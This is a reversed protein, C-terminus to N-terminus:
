SLGQGCRGVPPIPPRRQSQRIRNPVQKLFTASKARVPEPEVRLWRRLSMSQRVTSRRTMRKSSPKWSKSGNRRATKRWDDWAAKSIEVVDIVLDAGVFRLAAKGIAMMLNAPCVCRQLRLVTLSPFSDGSPYYREDPENNKMFISDTAFNGPSRTGVGGSDLRDGPRGAGPRPAGPGPDEVSADSARVRRRRDTKLPWPSRSAIRARPFSARPRNRNGVSSAARAFTSACRM